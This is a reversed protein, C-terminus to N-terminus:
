RESQILSHLLPMVAPIPGKNALPRYRVTASPLLGYRVTASLPPSKSTSDRSFVHDPVNTGYRVLRQKILRSETIFQEAFRSIKAHAASAAAAQPRRPSRRLDDSELPNNARVRDRGQTM